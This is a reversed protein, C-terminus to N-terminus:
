DKTEFIYDVPYIGQKSNGFTQDLELMKDNKFHFAGNSEFIYDYGEFYEM